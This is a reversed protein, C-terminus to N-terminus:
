SVFCQNKKWRVITIIMRSHRNNTVAYMTTMYDAWTTNWYDQSLFKIFFDLWGTQGDDVIYSSPVEFFIHINVFKWTHNYNKFIIEEEISM